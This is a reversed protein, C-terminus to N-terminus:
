ILWEPPANSPTTKCEVRSFWSCCVRLNTQPLYFYLSNKTWGLLQASIESIFLLYFFVTMSVLDWPLPFLISGHLVLVWVLSKWFILTNEEKWCSCSRPENSLKWGSSGSVSSSSTFNNFCETYYTQKRPSNMMWFKSLNTTNKLYLISALKHEM